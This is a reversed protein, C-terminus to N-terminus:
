QIRRTTGNINEGTMQTKPYSSFLDSEKIWGRAVKDAGYEAEVWGPQVKLVRVPDNKVLYARGKMQANPGKHFFAKNASVLKVSIWNGSKELTLPEPGANQAFHRVNWCGGHEEELRLDIERRGEALVFKLKGKIFENDDPYWTTIQYTDGQLKGYIYFVCSFRPSKTQEDWGTYDAFFGTLEGKEKDVGILLSDYLGSSGEHIPAQKGEKQRAALLCQSNGALLLIITLSKFIYKSLAM